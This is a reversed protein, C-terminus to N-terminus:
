SKLCFLKCNGLIKSKQSILENHHQKSDLVSSNVAIEAWFKKAGNEGLLFKKTDKTFTRM